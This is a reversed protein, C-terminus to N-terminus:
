WPPRGVSTPPTSISTAPSSGLAIRRGSLRPLSRNSGDDQIAGDSTAWMRSRGMGSLSPVSIWACTSGPPPEAWDLWGYGEWVGIFCSDPTSTHAALVNMLEVLQEPPLGGDAPPQGFPCGPRAEGLPRSLLEWQALAHITRGSWAAVADWRVPAELGARAPHLIRVYREFVVPVLSGVAFDHFPRRHVRIWGAADDDLAPRQTPHSGSNRLHFRM